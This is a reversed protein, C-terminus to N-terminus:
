CTQESSAPVEAVLRFTGPTAETCLDMIRQIGAQAQPDNRM